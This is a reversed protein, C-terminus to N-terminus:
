ENFIKDWHGSYCDVMRNNEEIDDVNVEPEESEKPEEPEEFIGPIEIPIGNFTLNLNSM